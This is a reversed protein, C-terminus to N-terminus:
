KFDRELTIKGFDHSYPPQSFKYNNSRFIEKHGDCVASIFYNGSKPHNTFSAGPSNSINETYYIIKSNESSKIFIFCDKIPAGSKGVLELKVGLVRDGIGVCGM